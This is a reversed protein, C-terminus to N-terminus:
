AAARDRVLKRVGDAKGRMGAQLFNLDSGLTVYRAGAEVFKGILDPNGALGGLGAAKGSARCVEIVHGIADELASHGFQGDLGMDSLLDNSGVHLIDVGEVAAIAAANRVAEATEIMCVVTTRENMMRRAEVLNWNRYGLQPIGNTVSRSGKPAFRSNEVVTRADAATSVHPAIVGMAGADLARSIFDPGYTPVRVFPTIGAWLASVFIQSAQAMSMPAHELDVYFTDFGAAKVLPAIEVSEVLRVIMSIAPEDRLLCAQVNNFLLQDLEM